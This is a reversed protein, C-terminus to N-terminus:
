EVTVSKALNRPKDIDRGIEKAIYYAFMQSLGSMAIPELLPATKPIVFSLDSIDILENQGEFAMVILHGNRAKIEQANSVLKKYILPDTQSFLIVPTQKDILAISGHKLEGAPYGMSFIYTIEKLKLAGEMALPYGIHRGLFIFRLSTSYKKAVEQIVTKYREISTELALGAQALNNEAQDMQKPTIFKKELAIWNAM